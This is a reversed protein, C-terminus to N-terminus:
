FYEAVQMAKDDDAKGIYELFMKETSHGTMYILISTPINGYNNTAFTRRGIHSTVLEWKKFTGSKKRNTEIDNKSGKTKYNLEAIRCVDKIYDNYKQDSIAYPFEGGRKNLIANVKKSLPISMLKDTKVQRFEILPKQEGKTNTKYRIMNKTFRMFDSVRQGTECSILLWDRANELSDTDFTKNEIIQIDDPTLYIKDVKQFSATVNDLQKSTEIDNLKAHYCVTKIFKITRAITNPAYKQEICYQEFRLKFNLDIDKVLIESKSHTQFREVLHKVVFLKKYTGLSLENKKHLAYFDFYPILKNTIADNKIPPNILDKLWQTNLENKNPAENYAKEIKSKLANLDTQISNCKEKKIADKLGTRPYGAKKDWLDANIFYGTKAKIDFTRGNIFRVYINTNDNESQILFKITAMICIYLFASM